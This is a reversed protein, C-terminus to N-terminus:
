SGLLLAGAQRPDTHGVAHVIARAIKDGGVSSPEIANAYDDDKNCILRLDLVALSRGIAELLICDNFIALGTIALRQM